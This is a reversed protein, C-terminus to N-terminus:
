NVRPREPSGPPRFSIIALALLMENGSEDPMVPQPLAQGCSAHKKPLADRVAFGIPTLNLVSSPPIHGPLPDIAAPEDM